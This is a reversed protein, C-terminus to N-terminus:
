YKGPNQRSELYHLFRSNTCNDWDDLMCCEVMNAEDYVRVTRNRFRFEVKDFGKCWRFSQMFLYVDPNSYWGSCDSLKGYAGKELHLKDKLDIRKDFTYYESKKKMGICICGHYEFSIPHHIVNHKGAKIGLYELEEPCEDATHFVIEDCQYTAYEERHDGYIGIRDLYSMDSMSRVWIDYENWEDVEDMRLFFDPNKYPEIVLEVFRNDPDTDFVMPVSYSVLEGQREYYGNETNFLMNKLQLFDDQGINRITKPYFRFNYITTNAM